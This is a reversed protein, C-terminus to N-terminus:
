VARSRAPERLLFPWMLILAREMAERLRARGREREREGRQRTFGRAESVETNRSNVLAGAEKGHSQAEKVGDIVQKLTEAAFYKLNLNSTEDAM